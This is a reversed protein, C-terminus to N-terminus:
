AVHEDTSSPADGKSWLNRLTVYIQRADIPKHLVGNMGATQYRLVQYPATNTTLAFIPTNKNLSEGSRLREATEVGDLGPMMIDMLILDFKDGKECRVLADEGSDVSEVDCGFKSFMLEVLRQNISHDDVCLIKKGEFLNLEPTASLDADRVINASLFVTFISGTDPISEVTVRGGMARVLNRLMTLGLGLSHGNQRQTDDSKLAKSISELRSADMGAGTDDVSLIVAVKDELIPRCLLNVRVKGESTFKIANALMVSLIQQYRVPDIFLNERISNRETFDLKLNKLEAEPQWIALTNQTLKSLNSSHPTLKITGAEVSSMDLFDDLQTSLNLAASHAIEALEQRLKPDNGNSIEDLSGIIANMPTRLEHRTFAIFQRRANVAQELEKNKEMLTDTNFRHDMVLFDILIVTSLTAAVLQYSHQFGRESGTITGPTGLVNSTTLICVAILGVIFVGAIIREFRRAMLFSLIIINPIYIVGSTVNGQDVLASMAVGIVSLFFVAYHPTRATPLIHQAVLILWFFLILAVAAETQIILAPFLSAQIITAITTALTVYLTFYRIIVTYSADEVGLSKLQNCEARFIQERKHSRFVISVLLIFCRYAVRSFAHLVSNSTGPPKDAERDTM